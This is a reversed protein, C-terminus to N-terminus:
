TDRFLSFCNESRFKKRKKTRARLRKTRIVLERKSKRAAPPGPPRQLGGPPTRPLTGARFSMKKMFKLNEVYLFNWMQVVKMM